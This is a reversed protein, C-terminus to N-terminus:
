DGCSCAPRASQCDPPCAPSLPPFFENVPFSIGQFLECPDAPTIGSCCEQDPICYDYIPILLETERELRVISFQGLTVRVLPTSPTLQIDSAFAASICAPVDALTTGGTGSESSSIGLVIPDVAEVVALPLADAETLAGSVCQDRSTFSKSGGESGFLICRKDFVCLGEVETGRVSTSQYAQLAVRYYFRMDVTYYGRHFSVPEVSVFVHLLEASSGKLNAASALTTASAATPYFQLDELCDKDRCSDMVKRTHVCVAEQVADTEPTIPGPVVHCAM